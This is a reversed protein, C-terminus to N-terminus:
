VVLLVDLGCDPLIKQQENRQGLVCAFLWSCQASSSLLKGLPLVLLHRGEKELSSDEKNSVWVKM